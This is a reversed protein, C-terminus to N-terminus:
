TLAGSVSAARAKRPAASIAPPGDARYLGPGSVRLGDLFAGATHFATNILRRSHGFDWPAPWTEIGTPLRDKVQQIRENVLQRASDNLVLGQASDFGDM